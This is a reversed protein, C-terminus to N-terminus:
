PFLQPKHRLTWICPLPWGEAGCGQRWFCPTAHTSRARTSCGVPPRSGVALTHHVLLSPSKLWLYCGTFKAETNKMQLQLAAKFSSQKGSYNEWCRWSVVLSWFCIVNHVYAAQLYCPAKPDQRSWWAAQIVDYWNIWHLFRYGKARKVGQGWVWGCVDMCMQEM